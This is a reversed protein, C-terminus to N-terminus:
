WICVEEQLLIGCSKFVREKVEAILNLIDESTANGKNVIFNAHVASVEADGIAFGKLGLRDILQGAPAESPNIFVCGACKKGVPQTKKRMESFTRMMSSIESPEGPQLSLSVRLILPLKEGAPADPSGFSISSVLDKMRKRPWGANGAVAGGVTGPITSFFELGTLGHQLAKRAMSSLTTGSLSQLSTGSVEVEGRLKGTNLVCFLLEGDRVLLNTGGGLIKLPVNQDRCRQYVEEAVEPKEPFYMVGVCGGVGFSTYGALAVNREYACGAADGIAAAVAEHQKKNREM